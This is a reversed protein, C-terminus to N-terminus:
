VGSGSSHLLARRRTFEDEDIEGRAFREALVEDARAFPSPAAQTPNNDTRLSRVLWVALAILGGWFVIMMLSMLLWAGLGWGSDNWLMM